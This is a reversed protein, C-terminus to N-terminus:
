IGAIYKQIATADKIDVVGDANFDGLSQYEAGPEPSGAISKQIETADKIGIKKDSDLDGLYYRKTTVQGSASTVKLMTSLLTTAVPDSASSQKIMNMASGFSTKATDNDTIDVATTGSMLNDVALYIVNDDGLTTFDLTISANMTSEKSKKTTFTLTKSQGVTVTPITAEFWVFRYAGSLHTGIPDATSRTMETATEGDVSMYPILSSLTTGKFRIKVSDIVTGENTVKVSVPKSKKEGTTHTAVVYYYYNGITESATVTVVNNTVTEIIVDDNPTTESNDTSRYFTYTVDSLDSPAVTATLTFENGPHISSTSSILTVGTISLPKVTVSIVDSTVEKSGVTAVVYYYYSGPTSEETVTVTSGSSALNTDDESVTSDVSKYFKYTVGSLDSPAVTATLTISDGVTVEDSNATLTVGELEAPPVSEKFTVNVTVNAAPMTFTYTNGSGTANTASGGDPTYTVTDVEYGPNPTTNVTVAAGQAASTPSVTFSGNTEAGKSVTFTTTTGDDKSIKVNNSNYTVKVNIANKLKTKVFYYNNGGDTFTFRDGADVFAFNTTDDNNSSPATSWIGNYKTEFTSGTSIFFCLFDDKKLNSITAVYNTGDDSMPVCNRFNSGSLNDGITYWLYYPGGAGVSVGDVVAANAPIAVLIMSIVMMISLIISILSKSKFKM